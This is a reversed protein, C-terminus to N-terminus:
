GKPIRVVVTGAIKDHWAQNNRDFAIWIFGLGAVFLSILCGLARAVSTEWDVARGDLRVVQLDCIIGGVTTGRLKWMLAGYVALLVVPVERFPHFLSTVFGILLVDLFLAAMRIWFGARPLAATAGVYARAGSSSPPPEQPFPPVPGAAAAAAVFPAAADPSPSAASPNPPVRDSKAAQRARVRLILTYVVAGFGLIGLLKYFVLGLVPVLYLVTVLVGGVLVAFAPHGIAGSIGVGPAAVRRAGVIHQGVWALM